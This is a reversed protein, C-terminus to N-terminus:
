PAHGARKHLVILGYRYEISEVEGWQDDLCRLFSEAARLMSDDYGPWGGLGVMWDEIAYWGGPTVLPWLLEWTRRTLDGRHSADDVILDYVPSITALNDPLTPEDQSAVVKITGEPWTAGPNIDVGVILGEPFLWQWMALSGGHWVGVECIRAKPGLIDALRQYTPLYGHDTKDTVWAEPHM